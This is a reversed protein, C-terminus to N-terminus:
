LFHSFADLTQLQQQVLAEAPRESYHPCIRAGVRYGSKRHYLLKRNLERFVDGYAMTCIDEEEQTM